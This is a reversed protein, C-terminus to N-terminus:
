VMCTCTCNGMTIAYAIFFAWLLSNESSVQVICKYVPIVMFMITETNGILLKIVKGRFYWMDELLHGMLRIFPMIISPHTCPHTSPHKMNLKKKNLLIETMHIIM